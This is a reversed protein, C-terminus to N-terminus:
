REFSSGYTDFAAGGILGEKLEYNFNFKPAANKLVRLAAPVTEQGIGDGPLIAIQFPTTQM